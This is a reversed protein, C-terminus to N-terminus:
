IQIHPRCTVISYCDYLSRPTLQFHELFGFRLHVLLCDHLVIGSVPIVRDPVLGFAVRQSITVIASKNLPAAPPYGLLTMLLHDSKRNEVLERLRRFFCIRVSQSAMTRPIM